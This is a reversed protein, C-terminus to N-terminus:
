TRVATVEITSECDGDNFPQLLWTREAARLSQVTSVDKVGNGLSQDVRRAALAFLREARRHQSATLKRSV